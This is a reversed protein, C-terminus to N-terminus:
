ESSQRRCCSVAIERQATPLIKKESQGELSSCRAAVSGPWVMVLVIFIASTFVGWRSSGCSMTFNNVANRLANFALTVQSM